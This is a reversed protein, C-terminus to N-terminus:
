RHRSRAAPAPRAPRRTRWRDCCRRASAARRRDLRCPRGDDNGSGGTTLFFRASGGGGGGCRMACSRPRRRLRDIADREVRRHEGPQHGARALLAAADREGGNRRAHLLGHQRDFVPAEVVMGADIGDAHDARDEGVDEAVAGVRDAAAGDRLLERAHEEQGLLHDASCCDRCREYRRLIRSCNM